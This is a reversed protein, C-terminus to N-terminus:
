QGVDDLRNAATNGLSVAREIRHPVHLALHQDEIPDFPDPMAAIPLRGILLRLLIKFRALQRIDPPFDGLKPLGDVGQTLRPLSPSSPLLDIM